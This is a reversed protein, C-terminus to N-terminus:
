RLRARFFSLLEKWAIQTNAKHSAEHRPNFFFRRSEKYFTAKVSRGKEICTEKIANMDALTFVPDVEAINVLLPAAIDPIVRQMRESFAPYFLVGASFLPIRAAVIAGLTAGVDFGLLGVRGTCGPDGNIEAVIEIISREDLSDLTAAPIGAVAQQPTSRLPIAYAHIGQQALISVMSGVASQAGFRDNLVVIAPRPTNGPAKAYEVSVSDAGVHFWRVSVRAPQASTLASVLLLLLGTLLKSHM